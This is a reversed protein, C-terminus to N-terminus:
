LPCGAGNSHNIYKQSIVTQVLNHQRLYVFCEVLGVAQAAKGSKDGGELAILAGRGAKEGTM